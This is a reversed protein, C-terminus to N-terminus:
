SAACEQGLEAKRSMAVFSNYRAAYERARRILATHREGSRVDTTGRIVNVRIARCQALKESIGPVEVSYGAVGLFGSEGKALSAAAEREPNRSVLSELYALDDDTAGVAVLSIACASMAAAVTVRM